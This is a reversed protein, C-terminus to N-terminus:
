KLDTHTISSPGNCSSGVSLGPPGQPLSEPTPVEMSWLTDRAFTRPTLVALLTADLSEMGWVMLVEDQSECVCVCVCVCM